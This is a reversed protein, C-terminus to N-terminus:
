LVDDDLLPMMQVGACAAVGGLAGGGVGGRQGVAVALWACYDAEYLLHGALSEAAAGLTDGHAVVVVHSIGTRAKTAAAAATAAATAAAAAGAARPPPHQPPAGSAAAAAAAATATVSDGNTSARRGSGSSSGSGANGSARRTGGGGGSGGGGSSSGGGNAVAPLEKGRCMRALVHSYRLKAQMASETLPPREGLVTGLAVGEGLADGMEEPTLYAFAVRRLSSAAPPPADSASADPRQAEEAPDVLLTGPGCEQRVKDMREGVGLHVHVVGCGFVRAVHGATQLCRRFPSSVICLGIPAGVAAMEWVKADGIPAGAAAMEWVTADSAGSYWAGELAGSDLVALAARAARGDDVIPTDYPRAARDTWERLRRRLLRQQEDEEGGEEGKAEEKDEGEGQEAAVDMAAPPETREAAPAAAAAAAESKQAAGSVPPSDGDADAAPDTSQVRGDHVPVVAPAAGAIADANAGDGAAGAKSSGISGDDGTPLAAAGNAAAGRKADAADAAGAAAAAAADGQDAAADATARAAAAAAAARSTVAAAAADDLLVDLRAAHRVICVIRPGKAAVHSPVAASAQTAVSAAAAAAAVAAVPAAAYAGTAVPTASTRRVPETDQDSSGLSDANSLDSSAAAAAQLAPEPEPSSATSSFSGSSALQELEQQQLEGAAGGTLEAGTDPAHGTSDSPVLLEEIGWHMAAAAQQMGVWAGDRASAALSFAREMFSQQAQAPPPSPSRSRQQRQESQLQETEAVQQQQESAHEEVEM